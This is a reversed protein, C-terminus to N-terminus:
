KQSSKGLFTSKTKPFKKRFLGKLFNLFEKAFRYKHIDKLSLIYEAMDKTICERKIYDEIVTPCKKIAKMCLEPTQQMDRICYPSVNIVADEIEKTICEKPITKFTPFWRKASEVIIEKTLYKAPIYQINSGAMDSNPNSPAPSLISLMALETSMYPDPVGKVNEGNGKVAEYCIEKTIFEKPILHLCPYRSKSAALCLSSDIFHKPVYEIIQGNREVASYCNDYTKYRDLCYELAWCISKIAADCLEQTQVRKPIYKMNWGNETVSILCLKYYEDPTLLHPRISSIAGDHNKVAKECLAYNIFEDRIYCISPGWEEVSIKVSEETQKFTKYNEKTIVQRQQLLFPHLPITIYSSDISDLSDESTTEIGSGSISICEEEEM